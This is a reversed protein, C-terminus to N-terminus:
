IIRATPKSSHTSSNMPASNTISSSCLSIGKAESFLFPAAHQAGGIVDFVVPQRRRSLPRHRGDAAQREDFLLDGPRELYERPSPFEVPTRRLFRGPGM